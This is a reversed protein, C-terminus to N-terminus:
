EGYRHRERIIGITKGSLHRVIENTSPRELLSFHKLQMLIKPEKLDRLEIADPKQRSAGSHGKLFKVLAEKLAVGEENNMYRDKAELLDQLDLRSFDPVFFEM